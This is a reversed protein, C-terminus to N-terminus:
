KNLWREIHQFCRAFGEEIKEDNTSDTRVTPPATPLENARLKALDINSQVNLKHADSNGSVSQHPKVNNVRHKEDPTRKPLLLVRKSDSSNKRTKAVWWTLSTKHIGEEKAVQSIIKKENSIERPNQQQSCLENVRDVCHKKLAFTSRFRSRTAIESINNKNIKERAGGSGNEWHYVTRYNLGHEKAVQWVTKTSLEEKINKVFEPDYRQRRYIEPQSPHSSSSQAAETPQVSALNNILLTGDQVTKMYQNTALLFFPGNQVGSIQNHFSPLQVIPSIQSMWGSIDNGHPPQLKIPTFM